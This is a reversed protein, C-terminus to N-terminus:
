QGALISLLKGGRKFRRDLPHNLPRNLPRNLDTGTDTKQFIEYTDKWHTTRLPQVM